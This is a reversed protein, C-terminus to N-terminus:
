AVGVARKSAACRGEVAPTVDVSRAAAGRAGNSGRPQAGERGRASRAHDPSCDFSLARRPQSAAHPNARDNRAAVREGIRRPRCFAAFYRRECRAVRERRGARRRQPSLKGRVGGSQETLDNRRPPTAAAACSAGGRRWIRPRSPKSSRPWERTSRRRGRRTTQARLGGPRRRRRPAHGRRRAIRAREDRRAGGRRSGPRHPRTSPRRAQAALRPPQRRQQSRSRLRAHARARHLQQRRAALARANREGISRGYAALSASTERALDASFARM